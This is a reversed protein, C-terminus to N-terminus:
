NLLQETAAILWDRLTELINTCYPFDANDELGTKHEGFKEFLYLCGNRRVPSPNEARM